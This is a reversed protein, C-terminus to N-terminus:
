IKIVVTDPDLIVTEGPAIKSVKAILEILSIETTGDNTVERKVLDVKVAKGEGRFLYPFGM